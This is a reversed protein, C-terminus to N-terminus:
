KRRDLLVALLIVAGKVIQQYFSSVELLNLGNNLIGIIFAGIITGVMYGRGGSLSTGGLVVAAIADLEYGQGALPQASDLRSTLIISALAAFFGSIAYVSARLRKVPLGSLRAAEANGGIAYIGKGYVTKNLIFATAIFSILLIIGSWPVGVIEGRGVAVFMGSDGLGTIPRGQTFVFTAGRFMTMFAMSVIFPQLNFFSIFVGNLLGFLSGLIVAIVISVVDSIGSKLLTAVLAGSLALVSGVSLDIGGSLIVFTMGVAVLGNLSVQNLINMLNSITLFHPSLISLLLGLLLLGILSSYQQPITFHFQKM